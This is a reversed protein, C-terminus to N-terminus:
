QKVFAENLLNLIFSLFLAVAAVVARDVSDTVFPAGPVALGWVAFAITPSILLWIHYSRNLVRDKAMNILKISILTYLLTFIICIIYVLQTTFFTYKSQILQQM